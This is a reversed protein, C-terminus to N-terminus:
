LKIIYTATINIIDRKLDYLDNFGSNFLRRSDKLHTKQISLDLLSYGFDIGLGLSIIDMSTDYTSNYSSDNIYGARLNFGQLKYEGGIKIINKSKLDSRIENNLETFSAVQDDEFYASSIDTSIYEFSLLAKKEFVYALSGSIKSPIVLRYKPYVNITNPDITNEFFDDGIYHSSIIFQTSEEFFRYWIPSHYNFGIRLNNKLKTILGIQISTGKGYTTLENKFQINQISSSSDYNNEYFDKKESYRLKYSNINLGIFINNMYVGSINYTNKKNEGNSTIYYEQNLGNTYIANSFYNTNNENDYLPNIVYAQYGLFAQQAGYGLNSSNGLFRYLDSISENDNLQINKTELGEAFYLFYDDIGKNNNNSYVVIEDKFTNNLQYNFAFNLRSWNNSSNEKKLVFIMGFQNINFDSLSENIISNKYNSFNEENEYDLSLGIQSYNFVAASAPNNNISSFDGGLAGFAGGMSNYRATGIYSENVYRKLDELNQANITQSLTIILFLIFYNFKIPM